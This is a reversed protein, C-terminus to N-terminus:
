YRDSADDLAIHPLISRVHPIAVVGRKSIWHFIVGRHGNTYLSLTRLQLAPSNADEAICVLRNIDFDLRRWDLNVVNFDAVWRAIREDSISTRIGDEVALRVIQKIHLGTAGGDKLAKFFEIVADSMETSQANSMDPLELRALTDPFRVFSTLTKLDKVFRQFDNVQRDPGLWDFDSLSLDTVDDECGSTLKGAYHAKPHPAYM